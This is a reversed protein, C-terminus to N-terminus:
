DAPVSSCCYVWWSHLVNPPQAKTLRLHIETFSTPFAPEHDGRQLVHMAVNAVADVLDIARVGFLLGLQLYNFYKTKPM